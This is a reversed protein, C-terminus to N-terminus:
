TDSSRMAVWQRAEELTSFLESMEPKARYQHERHFGETICQLTAVTARLMSPCTLEFLYELSRIHAIHFDEIHFDTVDLFDTIRYKFKFSIPSQLANTLETLDEPLVSGSFQAYIGDSEYTIKCPM